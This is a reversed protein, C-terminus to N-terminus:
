EQANSGSFHSIDSSYRHVSSSSSSSSPAREWYITWLFKVLTSMINLSTKAMSVDSRNVAVAYACGSCRRLANLGVVDIYGRKDVGFDHQMCCADLEDCPALGECGTYGYGCYRGYPLYGKPSSICRTACGSERKPPSLVFKALDSVGMLQKKPPLISSWPPPMRRDGDGELEDNNSEWRRFQDNRHDGDHMDARRSTSAFYWATAALIVISSWLFVLILLLSAINRRMRLCLRKEHRNYCTQRHRICACRM